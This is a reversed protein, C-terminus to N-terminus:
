YTRANRLLTFFLRAIKIQISLFQEKKNSIFADTCSTRVDQVPYM